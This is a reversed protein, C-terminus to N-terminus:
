RSVGQGASFLPVLWTQPARDTRTAPSQPHLEEWERGGAQSWEMASFDTLAVSLFEHRKSYSIALM